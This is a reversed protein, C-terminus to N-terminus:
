EKASKDASALRLFSSASVISKGIQFILFPRSPVVDNGGSYSAERAQIGVSILPQM